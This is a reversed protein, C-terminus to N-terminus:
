GAVLASDRRLMGVLLPTIDTPAPRLMRTLDGKSLVYFEDERTAAVQGDSLAECLEGLTLTRPESSEHSHKM